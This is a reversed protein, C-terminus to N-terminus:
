RRTLTDNRETHPFVINNTKTHVTVTCNNLLNIFILRDHYRIQDIIILVIRKLKNNLIPPGLTANNTVIKISNVCLNRNIKDQPRRNITAMNDASMIEATVVGYIELFRDLMRNLISLIRFTGTYIGIHSLQRILKLNAMPTDQTIRDQLMNVLTVIINLRGIIMPVLMM